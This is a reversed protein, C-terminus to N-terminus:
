NESTSHSRSQRGANWPPRSPFQSRSAVREGDCENAFHGPQNCRRCILPGPRPPRRYQNANQLQAISGVLQDLQEQQRKLMERMESMESVSTSPVIAQPAGRVGYQVGYVSPVSQSRGRVGGPLGEREWRIAEARVELLTCGPQRRVLQKLERRLSSNLIHEVFQDRLLAGAPPMDAPASRKVKEMLSLLALSFEQLTEGEQQGRSFFAQQVAVYSESCGYLEDLIALIRVPDEREAASRYKIEEKAEGELHDFLFFAQDSQSLHRARMSAQVEEVWESLGVGTRGRFITCRRDRPVFILREAVATPPAAPVASSTSPLVSPGAQGQRLRENDAKLQAILERLEQTEEEMIVVSESRHHLLM